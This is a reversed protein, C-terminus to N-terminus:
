EELQPSFFHTTKNEGFLRNELPFSSLSFKTTLFDYDKDYYNCLTCCQNRKDNRVIRRMRRIAANQRYEINEIETQGSTSM